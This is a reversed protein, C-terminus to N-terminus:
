RRCVLISGMSHSLSYTRLEFPFADAGACGLSGQTYPDSTHYRVIFFCRLAEDFRCVCRQVFSLQVTAVADCPVRTANTAFDVDGDSNPGTEM